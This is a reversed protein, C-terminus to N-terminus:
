IVVNLRKVKQHTGRNTFFQVISDAFYHFENHLLTHTINLAKAPFDTAKTNKIKQWLLEKM